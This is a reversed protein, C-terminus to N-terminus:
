LQLSSILSLLFFIIFQDLTYLVRKFAHM